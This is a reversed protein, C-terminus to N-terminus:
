KQGKGKGYQGEGQKERHSDGKSKSKGKGAHDSTERKGKAKSKGKDVAPAPATSSPRGPTTRPGQRQRLQRQLARPLRHHLAQRVQVVLHLVVRMRRTTDRDSMGGRRQSSGGRLVCRHVSMQRSSTVSNLHVLLPTHSDKDSPSFLYDDKSKQRTCFGSASLSRTSLDQRIRPGSRWRFPDACELICCAICDLTPVTGWNVPRCRDYEFSFTDEWWRLSSLPNSSVFRPTLGCYPDQNQGNNYAKVFYRVMDQWCSHKISASGQRNGGYRYGSMNADGAVIDTQLAFCDALMIGYAQRSAVHSKMHFVCVRIVNMGPRTLDESMNTHDDDRRNRSGQQDEIEGQSPCKGFCVECIIYNMPLYKHAESRYNSGAIQNIYAGIFNCRVMVALDKANKQHVLWGNDSLYAIESDVLQSAENRLILHSRSGALSQVMPGVGASDREDILEAYVAPLTNKAGLNVTLFGLSNNSTYIHGDDTRDRERLEMARCAVADNLILEGVEEKNIVCSLFYHLLANQLNSCTVRVDELKGLLEQRRSDARQAAFSSKELLNDDITSRVDGADFVIKGKPVRNVYVPDLRNICDWLLRETFGYKQAPHQLPVNPDRFIMHQLKFWYVPDHRGNDHYFGTAPGHQQNALAFTPSSREVSQNQELFIKYEDLKKLDLEESERKSTSVFEDNIESAKSADAASSAKRALDLDEPDIHIRQDGWSGQNTMAAQVEDKIKPLNKFDDSDGGIDKFSEPEM